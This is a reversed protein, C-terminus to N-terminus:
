KEKEGQKLDPRRPEEGRKHTNNYKRKTTVTRVIVIRSDIDSIAGLLV